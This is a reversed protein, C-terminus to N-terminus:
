PQEKTTSGGDSASTNPMPEGRLGAQFAAFCEYGRGDTRADGPHPYICIEKVRSIRDRLLRGIAHAWEIIKAIEPYQEVQGAFVFPARAGPSPPSVYAAGAPQSCWVSLKEGPALSALQQDLWYACAGPDHYLRLSRATRQERGPEVCVGPPWHHWTGVRYAAISAAGCLQSLLLYRTRLFQTAFEAEVGTLRRFDFLEADLLVCRVRQTETMNLTGLRRVLDLLDAPDATPSYQLVLPLGGPALTAAQTLVTELQSNTAYNLRLTLSGIDLALRLAADNYYLPAWLYIPPIPPLSTPRPRPAVVQAAQRPPAVHQSQLTTM